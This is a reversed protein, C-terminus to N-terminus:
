KKDKNIFSQEKEGPTLRQLFARLSDTGVEREKPTSEASQGPYSVDQTWTKFMKQDETVCILHNTGKRVIEGVLGTPDHVVTDGINFVNEQIYNERLGRHDLRPAIEWDETVAPEKPKVGMADQIESFISVATENDISKPLGKKFARFDNDKAAKRMKSASM